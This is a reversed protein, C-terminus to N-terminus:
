SGEGRKADLVQQGLDTLTVEGHFGPQRAPSVAVLRANVARQITDSRVGAPLRWKPTGPRNMYYRRVSGAAVVELARYQAPTVSPLPM